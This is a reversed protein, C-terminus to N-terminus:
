PHAVNHKLKLEDIQKQLHADERYVDSRLGGVEDLAFEHFVKRMEQAHEHRIRQLDDADQMKTITVGAFFGVILCTVVIALALPPVKVDELVKAVM